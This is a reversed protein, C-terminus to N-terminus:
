SIVFKISYHPKRGTNQKTELQDLLSNLNNGAVDEFGSDLLIQYHGKQWKESPTFRLVFESESIKWSGEINQNEENKIQIM